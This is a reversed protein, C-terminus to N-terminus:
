LSRVLGIAMERPTPELAIPMPLVGDSHRAMLAPSTTLVPIVLLTLPISFMGCRAFFTVRTRRLAAIAILGLSVLAGSAAAGKVPEAAVLTLSNQGNSSLGTEGRYSRDM